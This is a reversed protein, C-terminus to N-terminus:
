PTLGIRQLLGAFRQDSRLSDLRPDVKLFVMWHSREQYARELWEFAKDTEGLAAYLAAFVHPAVYKQKSWQKLRDLIKIAEHKKGAVAYVYGLREWGDLDDPALNRGKQSHEIAADYMKKATYADGLKWRLNAFNQDLQLTQELQQIAQEYQRAFYLFWGLNSNIILSLPDLKQARKMEAMAEDFRGVMTLYFGYWHHATAYNSNLEIARKFERESGTWDWEYELKGFALATHAEALTNDIELARIAASMAKPFSEKPPSVNYDGILNYADAMGAFGLAYNSDKAIAQQFYKVAEM